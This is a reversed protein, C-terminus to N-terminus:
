NIPPIRQRKTCQNLVIKNYGVMLAVFMYYVTLFRDNSWDDIHHLPGHRCPKERKRVITQDIHDFSSDGVKLAGLISVRDMFILFVISTGMVISYYFTKLIPDDFDRKEVTQLWKFLIIKHVMDWGCSAWWTTFVSWSQCQSGIYIGCACAYLFSSHSCILCAYVHMLMNWRERERESEKESMNISHKSARSPSLHM